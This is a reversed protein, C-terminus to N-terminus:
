AFFVLWCHLFSYIHQPFIRAYKPNRILIQRLWVFNIQTLLTDGPHLFIRTYYQCPSRRWVYIAHILSACVCLFPCRGKSILTRRLSSLPPSLRTQILIAHVSLQFHHVHNNATWQGGTSDLFCRPAKIILNNQHCISIMKQPSILRTRKPHRNRDTCWKWFNSSPKVGLDLRTRRLICPAYM